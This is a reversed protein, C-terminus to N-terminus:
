PGGRRARARYRGPSTGFWARFARGFNSPDRYGLRAAISAVRLDTHLLHDTALTRRVEEVIAKYSTGGRKLRRILTRPSVHQDAAIESLGPLREPNALLAQRVALEAPISGAAARLDEECRSLLYRHMAADHLICTEDLWAAPFRLSHAAADFSLDAHFSLALQDAYAPRPYALGIHAGRIERGLPRELMNQFSLLVIEILPERADGMDVPEYLRVVFEDREQFGALWVFPSRTGVFRLLVGVAERVNPATVVAFGLPGHYPITLQRALSLHWGRGLARTANSLVKRSKEFDVARDNQALREADLGTGDFLRGAPLGSEEAYKLFLRLYAVPVRWQENQDKAPM